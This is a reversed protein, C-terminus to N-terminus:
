LANSFYKIMFVCKHTQPIIRLLITVTTFKDFSYRVITKCPIRSTLMCINVNRVPKNKNEVNFRLKISIRVDKLYYTFDMPKTKLCRSHTKKMYISYSSLTQYTTKCFRCDNFQHSTMWVVENFLSLMYMYITSRM